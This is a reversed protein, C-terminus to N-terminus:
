RRCTMRISPGDRFIAEEAGTHVLVQKPTIERYIKSIEHRLTPSGQSETYGLWLQHFRDAADPEFSLLEEVTMSECDSGCLVYDVNFEYRAFYREIKFPSIQM